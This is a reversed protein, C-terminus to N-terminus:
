KSFNVSDEEIYVGKYKIQLKGKIYIRTEQTITKERVYQRKNSKLPDTKSDKEKIEKHRKRYDDYIAKDEENSIVEYAENIQRIKVEYEENGPHLDPHYKKVLRRYSRKVEEITAGEQLELITYYNKEFDIM